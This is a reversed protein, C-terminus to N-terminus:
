KVEISGILADLVHLDPTFSSVPQENLLTLTDSLYVRYGELSNFQEGSSNADAPLEPNTVPLVAAIYYKGDKTLGQFTYILENNNIPTVGQGLQTLFRVGSVGKFDLFQLQAHLAQADPTLPLFPLQLGTQKTQLLAQLDTAIKDMNENAAALDAVPFFYIEPKRLHDAVPYGQLTMRRYEPAAEWFPGGTNPVTPVTELSIKQALASTDVTIDGTSVATPQASPQVTPAPLQTPEPTSTPLAPGCASLLPILLVSLAFLLTRSSRIINM